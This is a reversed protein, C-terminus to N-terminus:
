LLDQAQFLSLTKHTKMTQWKSISWKSYKILFPLPSLWNQPTGKFNRLVKFFDSIQVWVCELKNSLDTWIHGFGEYALAM